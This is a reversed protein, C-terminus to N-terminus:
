SVNCHIILKIKYSYTHTMNIANKSELVSYTYGGNDECKNVNKKTNLSNETERHPEPRGSKKKERM